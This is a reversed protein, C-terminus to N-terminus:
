IKRDDRLVPRLNTKVATTETKATATYRASATSNDPANPLAYAYVSSDPHDTLSRPQDASRPATQLHLRGM